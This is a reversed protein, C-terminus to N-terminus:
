EHNQLTDLYKEHVGYVKELILILLKKNFYLKGDKYFQAFQGFCYKELRDGYITIKGRVDISKFKSLTFGKLSINFDSLTQRDRFTKIKKTDRFSNDFDSCSIDYFSETDLSEIDIRISDIRRQQSFCTNLFMTFIQLMLIKCFPKM